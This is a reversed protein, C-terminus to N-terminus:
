IGESVLCSIGPKALKQESQFRKTHFLYAMLLENTTWVAGSSYSLYVPLLLWSM